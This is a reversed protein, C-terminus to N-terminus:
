IKDGFYVKSQGFNSAKQVKAKINIRKNENNKTIKEKGHEFRFDTLLKVATYNQKYLHYQYGITRQRM